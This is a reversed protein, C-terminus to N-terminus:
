KTNQIVYLISVGYYGGMFLIGGQISEGRKELIHDFDSCLLKFAELLKRM